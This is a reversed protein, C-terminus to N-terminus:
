PYHAGQTAGHRTQADYQVDLASADKIMADFRQRLQREVDGCNAASIAMAARKFNAEMDRGHQLHGNEHVELAGVYRNWGAVLKPDASAPANWRPMRVKLDLKTAIKNVKCAGGTSSVTNQYSLYWNAHALHPGPGAVDYYEIKAESFSGGGVSSRKAGAACGRDSYSVKGDAGVCKELAAANGSLLFGVPFAWFSLSKL